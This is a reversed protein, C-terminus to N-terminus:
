PILMLPCIPSLGVRVGKREDGGSPCRIALGNPCNNRRRGHRENADLVPRGQLNENGFRETSLRSPARGRQVWRWWRSCRIEGGPAQTCWEVQGTRAVSLGLGLVRQFPVSVKASGTFATLTGSWPLTTGGASTVFPSDSPEIVSLNTTGLDRSASYAGSDGAAAFASQGQEAMELFAEDFAAAYTAPDMGLAAGIQLATESIGWSTSVSGATNQSAAEFFADAFGNASNPSQYVIVNSGPAVGGSQEVDLDTEDSGSFYSPPGPGGDVNDVTVTRGTPPLNLVNTWFYQPAGADLAAQTIIGITQGAGTAGKDLLPTLGYDADFDVPLNCADPLGSLQQCEDTPVTSNGAGTGALNSHVTQSTFPGYDTLGLVTLVERALITPLRPAQETGHVTQSPVGSTGGKGPHAPVHYELQDVALAQDFQGATGTATVDLDDADTQTQIGFLALYFELEDIHIPNQGYTQAFQAVSLFNHVGQAVDSKLASLNRARLIFSVSEPTDAPTTGFVTGGPPATDSPVITTAESHRRQSRTTKAREPSRHARNSGHGAAGAESSLPGVLGLAVLGGLSLCLCAAGISSSASWRHTM